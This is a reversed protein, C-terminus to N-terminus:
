RHSSQGPGARRQEDAEVQRRSAERMATVIRDRLQARIEPNLDVAREVNDLIIKLGQIATASDTGMQRRAQSLGEAVEAMVKGALVERDAQVQDLLDSTPELESLLDDPREPLLM